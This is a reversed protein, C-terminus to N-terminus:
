LNAFESGNVYIAERWELSPAVLVGKDAGEVWKFFDGVYKRAIQTTRVGGVPGFQEQVLPDLGLAGNWMAIDCFDLHGSGYISINEWWGTQHEQFEAWSPDRQITHNINSMLFIPKKVDTVVTERQSFGGDLNVAAKVEPHNPAFTVAASGGISHGLALFQFTNFPANVRDVFTPFWSLAAALDDVRYEHVKRTLETTFDVDVSLGITKTRNPWLLAPPEGPHDIALITYGHSAMNALLGYYMWANFGAGPSFLITPKNTPADLFSANGLLSTTLKKLSGEPLELLPNWIDVSRSDFYPVDPGASTNHTPYYLHILLENAPGPTPDDLTIHPIVHQSFGTRYPGGPGLLPEATATLTFILQIFFHM